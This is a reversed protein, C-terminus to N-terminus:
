RCAEHRSLVWREVLGLRDSPPAEPIRVGASELLRAANWVKNAFNRGLEIGEESLPLNQQDPNAMRALAFRLADAGYRDVMDLPDIVNGLSKSMKRGVKDRVLGHIMVNTFPVDGVLYLGSMIMRAVWLYLIEYGTVLVTTPYFFELDETNEPWGM